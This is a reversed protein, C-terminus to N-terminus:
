QARRAAREAALAAKWEGYSGPGTAPTLPGRRRRHAHTRGPDKNKGTAPMARVLRGYIMGRPTCRTALWDARNPYDLSM